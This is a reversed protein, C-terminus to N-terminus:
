CLRHIYTYQYVDHPVASAAPLPYPTTTDLVVLTARLTYRCLRCVLFYCCCYPADLQPCRLLSRAVRILPAHSRLPSCLYSYPLYSYLSIVFSSRVLPPPPCLTNPPSLM